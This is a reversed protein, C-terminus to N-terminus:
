KPPDRKYRRLELASRRDLVPALGGHCALSYGEMDSERFDRKALDGGCITLPESHQASRSRRRFELCDPLVKLLVLGHCGNHARRRAKVNAGAPAGRIALSRIAAPEVSCAGSTGM